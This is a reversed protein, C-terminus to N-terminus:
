EVVGEEIELCEDLEGAEALVHANIQPGGRRGVGFVAREAGGEAVDSGVGIGGAHPQLFVELGGVAAANEREEGLRQAVAIIGREALRELFEGVGFGGRGPPTKEALAPETREGPRVRVAGSKPSVARGHVPGMEPWGWGSQEEAFQCADLM